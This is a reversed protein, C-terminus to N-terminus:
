NPFCKGTEACAPLLLIEPIPEVNTRFEHDHVFLPFVYPFCQTNKFYCSGKAREMLKDSGKLQKSAQDLPVIPIKLSLTVPVRQEEMLKDSGM